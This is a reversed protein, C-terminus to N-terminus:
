TGTSALAQPNSDRRGCQESRSRQSAFVRDWDAFVLVVTLAQASYDLEMTLYIGLHLLVAAPVYVWRAAAWVLVIPFTIELLLTAGALGHALLPNDAVFLALGNPDAQKDSAAYLIWRMNDSTVWDLGSHWLKAAGAFFYAGAVVVMALGLPWGYAESRGAPADKLRRHTRSFAAVAFPVLCLVLLVNNHMIKGTSSWMANLLIAAALAVPLTVRLWRGFAAVVAAAVGAVMAVTAVTEGPMSPILHMISVPRYLGDSRGAVDQWPGELLRWALLACLASRVFAVRKASASM